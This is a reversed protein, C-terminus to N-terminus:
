VEVAANKLDQLAFIVHRFVSDADGAADVTRLLGQAHYFELLPLTRDNYIQFRHRVAEPADDPRRFLATGDCDCRGAVRPPRHRVHYIEGDVPCVLRGSLREVLQEASMTLAVVANLRLGKDRRWDNLTKAQALDRPFGDLVYGVRADPEALRRGVWYVIDEDPAFNGAAIAAEIKRGFDTQRAIHDRIIDGTAVHPVGFHGALRLGQTGKGAGPPGLLVLRM